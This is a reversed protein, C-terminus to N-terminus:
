FGFVPSYEPKYGAQELERYFMMLSNKDNFQQPSNNPIVFIPKDAKDFGPSFPNGTEDNHWFLKGGSFGEQTVNKNLDEIIQEGFCHINGKDKSEKGYKEVPDTLKKIKDHINTNHSGVFRPRSELPRQNISQQERPIICFLDYDATIAKEEPMAGNSEPPNTMVKVWGKSDFARGNSDIHFGMDRGQFTVAYVKPTETEKLNGHKIAFQIQETSLVLDVAKAGKQKASEIARQQKDRQEISVKSKEPDEYIFGLPGSKAKMHFNKTPYGQILNIQGDPSPTRLGIVVRYKNATKQLSNFFLLNDPNFKSGIIPIESKINLSQLTKLPFKKFTSTTNKINNVKLGLRSPNRIDIASEGTYTHSTPLQTIKYVRRDKTPKYAFNQTM